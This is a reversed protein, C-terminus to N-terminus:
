IKDNIRRKGIKKVKEKYTGITDLFSAVGDEKTEAIKKEHRELVRHMYSVVRDMKRKAFHTGKISLKLTVLVALRSFKKGYDLIINEFGAINLTLVEVENTSLDQRIMLRQQASLKFGRYAILVIIGLLSTFFVILAISM